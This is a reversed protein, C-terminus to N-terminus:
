ACVRVCVCEPTHSRAHLRHPSLTQNEELVKVVELTCLLVTSTQQSWVFHIHCICVRLFVLQSHLSEFDVPECHTVPWSSSQIAHMPIAKYQMQLKQESLRYVTNSKREFLFQTVKLVYPGDLIVPISQHVSM